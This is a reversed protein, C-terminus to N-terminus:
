QFRFDLDLNDNRPHNAFWRLRSYSLCVLICELLIHVARVYGDKVSVGGPCLDGPCLGGLWLGGPCLGGPCLCGLCLGGTCIGGQVSVGRQLCVSVQSFLVKAFKTQPRHINRTWNIFFFTNCGFFLEAMTYVITTCLHDTSRIVIAVFTPHTSISCKPKWCMIAVIILFTSFTIQVCLSHQFNNTECINLCIPTLQSSCTNDNM